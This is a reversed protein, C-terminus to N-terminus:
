NTHIGLDLQSKNFENNICRLFKVLADRKEEPDKPPDIGARQLSINFLNHMEKPEVVRANM